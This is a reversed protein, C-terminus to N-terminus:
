LLNALHKIIEKEMVYQFEKLAAIHVLCEMGKISLKNPIGELLRKIYKNNPHQEKLKQQVEKKLRITSGLIAQSFDRM